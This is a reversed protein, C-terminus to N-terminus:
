SRRLHVRLGLNWGKCQRALIVFAWLLGVNFNFALILGYVGGMHRAYNVDHMRIRACELALATYGDMVQGFASAYKNCYYKRELYKKRM